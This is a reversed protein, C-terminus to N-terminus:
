PAGDFFSDPWHSARDPAPAPPAFLAKLRQSLRTGPSVPTAEFLPLQDPADAGPPPPPDPIPTARPM